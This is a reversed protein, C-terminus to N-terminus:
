PTATGPRRRMKLTNDTRTTPQGDPSTQVREHEDSVLVEWEAVPLELDSLLEDPTAFHMEPHPNEEWSPWGAHGIVLLVGGPLVAGAATRLIEIRPLEGHSHLFSASVLDFGGTPFTHALDHRQWDLRDAVGAEAAHDAARQLAVGSVDVATVRWGRQALWIADGGEGCGVDLAKGPPLDAVERVLAANPDGSWVQGNEAYRADWLDEASATEEAPSATREPAASTDTVAPKETM